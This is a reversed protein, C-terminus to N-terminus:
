LHWKIETQISYIIGFATKPLLNGIWNESLKKQKSEVASSYIDSQMDKNILVAESRSKWSYYVLLYVLFLHQLSHPFVALSKDSIDQLWKWKVVDDGRFYISIDTYFILPLTLHPSSHSFFINFFLGSFKWQNDNPPPFFFLQTLGNTISRKHFDFHVHGSATKSTIIIINSYIQWVHRGLMGWTVDLTPM